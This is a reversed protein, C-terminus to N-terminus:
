LVLLETWAFSFPIRDGAVDGARGAPALRWSARWAGARSSVIMGGPQGTDIKARSSACPSLYCSGVTEWRGQYRMSGERRRGRVGRLRESRRGRKRAAHEAGHLAWSPAPPRAYDRIEYRVSARARADPRRGPVPARRTAHACGPQAPAAHMLEHGHVMNHAHTM